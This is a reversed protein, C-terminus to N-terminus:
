RMAARPRNSLLEGGLDAVAECPIDVLAGMSRELLGMLGWYAYYLKGGFQFELQATGGFVFENPTSVNPNKGFAVHSASPWSHVM